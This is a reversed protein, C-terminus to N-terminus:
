LLISIPMAGARRLRVGALDLNDRWAHEALTVHHAECKDVELELPFCALSVVKKHSCSMYRGNLWPSEPYHGVLVSWQISRWAMARPSHHCISSESCGSRTNVEFAGTRLCRASVNALAIVIKMAEQVERTCIMDTKKSKGPQADWAELSGAEKFVICHGLEKVAIVVLM